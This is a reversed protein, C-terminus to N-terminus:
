FVGNGNTFGGQTVYNGFDQLAPDNAWDMNTVDIKNMEKGFRYQM